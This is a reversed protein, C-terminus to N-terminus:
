KHQRRKRFINKTLRLTGKTVAKCGCSLFIALGACILGGAILAFGGYTNGTCLLVVGGAIGGLSSGALSAFAAWLSIVVAWLCIYLSLAVAAAAILLSLWVPSGLVLLMIEWPKRKRGAQRGTTFPTSVVEAVIQKVIDDVSGVAAVAEEESLGDEMRDDIMETYFCVREAIDAEPLGSLKEQLSLIFELKTM